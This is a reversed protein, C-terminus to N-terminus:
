WTVAPERDHRGRGNHAARPRPGRHVDTRRRHPTRALAFLNLRSLDYLGITALASVVGVWMPVSLVIELVAFTAVGALLGVSTVPADLVAGRETALIMGAALLGAALVVAGAIFSTGLGIGLIVFLLFWTAVALAAGTILTFLKTM